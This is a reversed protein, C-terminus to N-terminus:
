CGGGSGGGSGGVRVDYMNWLVACQVLRDVFGVFGDAFGVTLHVGDNKVAANM